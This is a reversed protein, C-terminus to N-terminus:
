EREALLLEVRGQILAATEEATKDGSFFAAALELVLNKIASDATARVSAMDILAYLRAVEEATAARYAYEYDFFGRRTIEKWSAASHMLFPKTAM